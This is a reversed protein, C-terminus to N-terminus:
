YEDHVADENFTEEVSFDGGYDGAGKISLGEGMDDYSDDWLDDFPAYDYGSGALSLVLDVTSSRSPRIAGAAAAAAARDAKALRECKSRLQNRLVPDKPTRVHGPAPLPKPTGGSGRGRESVLPPRVFARAREQEAVFPALVPPPGPAVLPGSAPAPPGQRARRAAAEKAIREMDIMRSRSSARTRRLLSRDEKALQACQARLRQAMLARIEKSTLPPVNRTTTTTRPPWDRMAPAVGMSAAVDADHFADESAPSTADATVLGSATAAAVAFLTILKM